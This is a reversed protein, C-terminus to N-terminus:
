SFIIDELVALLESIIMATAGWIVFDDVEYYPVKVSKGERIQMDKEKVQEKGSLRKLEFDLVREVEKENPVVSPRVNLVSVFPYVLYNSVPIYLPSLAGAVESESVTVGIEEKTERIATRLLDGDEKEYKGGPFAVQGSHVGPYVPRRILLCRISGYEPWLVIMVASKVHGPNEALLGSLSYNQLRSLRKQAEEGPLAEKLRCTLTQFFDSEIGM